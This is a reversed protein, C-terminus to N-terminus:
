KTLELEALPLGSDIHAHLARLRAVAQADRRELACRTADPLSLWCNRCLYFRPPRPAQCARCPTGTYAGRRGRRSM